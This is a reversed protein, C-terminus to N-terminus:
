ALKIQAMRQLELETALRFSRLAAEDRRGARAADLRWQFCYLFESEDFEPSQCIKFFEFDWYRPDGVQKPRGYLFNGLDCSLASDFSKNYEQIYEEVSEPQWRYIMKIVQIGCWKVAELAMERQALNAATQDKVQALVRRVVMRYEDVIERPSMLRDIFSEDGKWKLEAVLNLM